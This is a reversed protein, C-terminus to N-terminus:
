RLLKQVVEKQKRTGGRIKWYTSDDEQKAKADRVIANANDELWHKTLGLNTLSPTRIIAEQVGTLLLKVAPLEVEAGDVRYIGRDNQILLETNSPEGLGGWWSQIHIQRLNADSPDQKL